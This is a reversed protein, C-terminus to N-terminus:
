SILSEIDTMHRRIAGLFEAAGVGNILRHDFTLGINASLVPQLTESDPDIGRYPEGLFLTAVAPPVVVPVADRLGYSQMNTLSITVSEDAQDEGDRARQIADQAADAFERWSLKDADRIVALVLEDGPRAVAIGLQVHHYTRVNSDGVISSRFSPFDAIAKAVAYAFMTFASPQFTDGSQKVKDRLDRIPQWPTVMSMTGPVVLQSGRTLRSALVRQKGGMPKEEYRDNSVAGRSASGTLFEDIDAPMLKAGSPKISVLDEDSLGKEKAYARTRPPISRLDTSAAGAPKSVKEAPKADTAAASEGAGEALDEPNIETGEAVELLLIPSGIPLVDDVEGVWEKVTGDYPCEVDMVAKDTEMQYISEDRKVTDGPEKLKAVLRAEQLGEGIM